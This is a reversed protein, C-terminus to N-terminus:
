GKASREQESLERLQRMVGPSFHPTIRGKANVRLPTEFGYRVVRNTMWLKSRGLQKAALYLPLYDGARLYGGTEEAEGRLQEVVAPPYHLRPVHNSDAMLEGLRATEPPHLRQRVWNTSKGLLRQIAEATMWGPKAPGVRKIGKLIDASDASYYWLFRGTVPSRMLRPELRLERLRNEIWDRDYGTLEVLQLTNLEFEAVPVKKLSEHLRLVVRRPYLSTQFAGRQELKSPRQQLQKAANSTWGYSRGIVEAIEGISLLKPLARYEDRFRKEDLIVALATLTNPPYCSAVTGEYPRPSPHIDLAKVQRYVWRVYIDLEKALVSAPLWRANMEDRM